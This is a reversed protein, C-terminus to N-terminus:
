GLASMLDVISCEAALDIRLTRALGSALEVDDFRKHGHGPKGLSAAACHIRAARFSGAYERLIRDVPGGGDIKEAAGCAGCRVDSACPLHEPAEGAALKLVLRGPSSYLSNNRAWPM